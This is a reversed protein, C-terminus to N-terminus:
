DDRVPPTESVEGTKAHMRVHQGKEDTRDEHKISQFLKDFASNIATREDGEPFPSMPVGPMVEFGRYFKNDAKGVLYDSRRNQQQMKDYIYGEFARALM